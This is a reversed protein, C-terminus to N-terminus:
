YAGAMSKHQNVKNNKNPGMLSRKGRGKGKSGMMGPKMVHGGGHKVSAVRPRMHDTSNHKTM